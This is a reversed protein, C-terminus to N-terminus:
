IMKDINKRANVTVNSYLLDKCLLIDELALSNLQQKCTSIFHIDRSVDDDGNPNQESAHLRHHLLKEGHFAEPFTQHAVFLGHHSPRRVHQHRPSLFNNERSGIFHM